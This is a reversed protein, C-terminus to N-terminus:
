FSEIGMICGVSWISSLLFSSGPTSAEKNRCQPPFLIIAPPPPLPSLFLLSSLLFSLPWHVPPNPIRTTKFLWPLYLIMYPYFLQPLKDLRPPCSTDNDIPESIITHANHISFTNIYLDSLNIILM